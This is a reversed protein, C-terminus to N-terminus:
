RYSKGDNATVVEDLDSSKQFTEIEGGNEQRQNGRFFRGYDSKNEELFSASKYACVLSLSFGMLAFYTPMAQSIPGDAEYGLGNDILVGTAYGATYAAATVFFTTALACKITKERM